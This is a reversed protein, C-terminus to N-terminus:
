PHNSVRPHGTLTNPHFKGFDALPCCKALTKSGYYVFPNRTRSGLAYVIFKINNLFPARSGCQRKRLCRERFRSHLSILTPRITPRSESERYRSASFSLPTSAAVRLAFDLWTGEFTVDDIHLYARLRVHTCSRFLKFSPDDRCFWPKVQEPSYTENGPLNAIRFQSMGM